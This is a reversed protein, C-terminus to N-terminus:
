HLGRLWHGKGTKEKTKRRENQYKNVCLEHADVESSKARQLSTWQRKDLNEPM